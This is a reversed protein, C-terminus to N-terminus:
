ELRLESARRREWGEKGVKGWREGGDGCGVVLILVVGGVGWSAMFIWVWVRAKCGGLSGAERISSCLCQKRCKSGLSAKRIGSICVM